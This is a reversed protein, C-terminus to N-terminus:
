MDLLVNVRPLWLVFLFQSLIFVFLGMTTIPFIFFLMVDLNELWQIEEWWHHHGVGDSNPPLGLPPTICLTTHTDGRGVLLCLSMISALNDWFFLMLPMFPWIKFSWIKM